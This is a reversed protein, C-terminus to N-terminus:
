TPTSFVQLRIPETLGELYDLTEQNLPPKRQSVTILSHILSTFEHGSPTGMIRVGIDKIEDGDKFAIVLSPADTVHYLAAVEGETEFNYKTLSLKDSLGVVEGLLQESLESHQDDQRGFAIVAVDNELNEFVEQVQRAVDDNLLREM